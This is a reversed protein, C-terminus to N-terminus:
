FRDSVECKRRSSHWWRGFVVSKFVVSM